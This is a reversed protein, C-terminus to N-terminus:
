GSAGRGTSRVSSSSWSPGLQATSARGVSFVAPDITNVVVGAINLALVFIAIGDGSGAFESVELKHQGRHATVTMNRKEVAGNGRAGVHVTWGDREQGAVVGRM